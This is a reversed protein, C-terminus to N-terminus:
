RSKWTYSTARALAAPFEGLPPWSLASLFVTGDDFALAWKTQGPLAVGDHIGHDIEVVPQQPPSWREVGGARTVAFLDGAPAFALATAAATLAISEAKGAAGGHIAVRTVRGDRGAAGLWRGSVDFALATIAGTHQAVLKESSPDIAGGRVAWTIVSGDNGGVALLDGAPSFALFHTDGHPHPLTAALEGGAPTLKWVRIVRDQGGSALLAGHPDFAVTETGGAHGTLAPQPTGDLAFLAIPGASSAVAVRDASTAIAKVIGHLDRRVPTPLWWTVTGEATGTIAIAGAPTAAIALQTVREALEGGHPRLVPSPAPLPAADGARAEHVPVEVHGVHVPVATVLDWVNVDGAADVAALHGGDATAAIREIVAGHADLVSPPIAALDWRRVTGDADSSLLTRGHDTFALHRVRADHGRLAIARGAMPSPALTIVELAGDDSAAAITMGDPAIALSRVLTRYATIPELAGAHAGATGERLIVREVSGGVGGLLVWSGDPAFVARKCKHGTAIPAGDAVLQDRDLRWARVGGDADVALVRAADTWVEVVDAPATVKVEHGTALQWLWITGGRAGAALATTDADFAVSEISLPATALKKGPSRGKPWLWINGHDDGTALWAGNPSWTYHQVDGVHGILEALQQGHTSVIALAGDDGGIALEKGDPSPRAAHLRGRKAAFVDHETPPTGRWVIAKGDYSATVFGGTPIPEVWHVEDSDAHLEDKAIGRAFAEDAIGWATGPDVGRSGLTSLWAIAETPDRALAARAQRLTLANTRAELAARAHEAKVRADDANRRATRAALWLGTVVAAFGALALAGGGIAAATLPKRQVYRQVREVTGATRVSVPQKALMRRVDDALAAASPYRDAPDKALAHETIAELDGKLAPDRKGLPIPPDDCIVCTLAPLPLEKADYPLEGSALEYLIVGLTYIDSRADVEDARLRAQEPSM